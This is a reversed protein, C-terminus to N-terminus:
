AALVEGVQELSALCPFGNFIGVALLQGARLTVVVLAEGNGFQATRLDLRCRQAGGSACGGGPEASPAGARCPHAGQRQCAVIILGM